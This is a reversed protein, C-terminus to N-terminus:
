RCCYEILDAVCDGMELVCDEHFCVTELLTVATLEHYLVMYPITSSRLEMASNRAAEVFQTYVKERWTEIIIVEEVIAPIKQELVLLEEVSEDVDNTAEYAAQM